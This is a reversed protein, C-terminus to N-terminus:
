VRREARSVSNDHGPSAVTVVAHWDPETMTVWAEGPTPQETLWLTAGPNWGACLTWAEAGDPARVPTPVGATRLWADISLHVADWEGAVAAWDPMLWRRGPLATHAGWVDGKANTVELPHVAVLAAWDEPGRVELVRTPGTPPVHDVVVAWDHDPGDEELWLGAALLGPSPGTTEIVAPINVPVSWYAGPQAGRSAPLVATDDVEFARLQESWATLTPAEVPRARIRGQEDSPHVSRLPAQGGPRTWWDAHEEALRRLFSDLVQPAVDVHTLELDFSIDYMYRVRQSTASLADLLAPVAPVTGGCFAWLTAARPTNPFRRVSVM